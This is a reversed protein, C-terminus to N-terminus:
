MVLDLFSFVKWSPIRYRGFSHMGIFIPASLDSDRPCSPVLFSTIITSMDMIRMDEVEFVNLTDGLHVSVEMM